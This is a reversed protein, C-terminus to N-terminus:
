KMEEIKFGAGAVAKRVPITDGDKLTVTLVREPTNLDVTWEAVNRMSNLLPTIKAVCGGCKLSTRFKVTKDM